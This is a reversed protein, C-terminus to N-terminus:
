KPLLYLLIGNENRTTVESIDHPRKDPNLLYLENLKDNENM